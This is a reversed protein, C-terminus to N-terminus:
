RGDAAAEVRERETAVAAPRASAGAMLLGLGEDDAETATLEGAIRGRYLVIIRDSLTKIEELDSSILLVGSGTARRDLLARRVFETAAVDIGRTPQAAVTVPHPDALERGIVVRQANGGSLTRVPADLDRAPIRFAPVVREIRRTIGARDLLFHREGGKGAHRGIALNDRISADTALGRRYRDEPIYCLGIARRAAVSAETVDQGDLVIRGATPPLLGTVLEALESQGNGAVGAVGV